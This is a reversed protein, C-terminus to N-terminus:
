GHRDRQSPGSSRAVGAWLLILAATAATLSLAIPAGEDTAIGVLLTAASALM